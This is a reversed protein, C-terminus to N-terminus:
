ILKCEVSKYRFNPLLFCLKSSRNWIMSTGRLTLVKGNMKTFEKYYTKNSLIIIARMTETRVYKIILKSKLERQSSEM